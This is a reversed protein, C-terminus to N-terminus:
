RSLGAWSPDGIGDWRMLGLAEMDPIVRRPNEKDLFGAAAEGISGTSTRAILAAAQIRVGDQVTLQESRQV